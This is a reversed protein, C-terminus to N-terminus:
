KSPGWVSPRNRKMAADFAAADEPTIVFPDAAGHEKAYKVLYEIARPNGNLAGNVLRKVIAERKRLRIQQGGEKMTIVQDLERDILTDIDKTKRPRGNPNGSVKKGFQHEKPPKGYGVDYEDSM